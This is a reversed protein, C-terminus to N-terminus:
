VWVIVLLRYRRLHNLGCGVSRRLVLAGEDAFRGLQNTDSRHRTRHEFFNTRGAHVVESTLPKEVDIVARDIFQAVHEGVVEFFFEIRDKHGELSLCWGLGLDANRLGLQDSPELPKELADLRREPCLLHRSLRLELLHLPPM